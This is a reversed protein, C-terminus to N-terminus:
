SRPNCISAICFDLQSSQLLERKWGSSISSTQEAEANMLVEIVTEYKEKTNSATKKILGDNM